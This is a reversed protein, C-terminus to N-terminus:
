IELEQRDSEEWELLAEIEDYEPNLNPLRGTEASVSINHQNCVDQLNDFESVFTEHAVLLTGKRYARVVKESPGKATYFGIRNAIIEWVTNYFFKNLQSFVDIYNSYEGESEEVNDQIQNLINGGIREFETIYPPVNRFLPYRVLESKLDNTAERLPEAIDRKFPNDTIEDLCAKRCRKLYLHIEMEKYYIEEFRMDASEYYEMLWESRDDANVVDQLDWEEMGSNFYSIIAEEPPIPGDEVGANTLIVNSDLSDLETLVDGDKFWQITVHHDLEFNRIASLMLKQEVRDDVDGWQIGESQEVAKKLARRFKTLLQEEIQAQSM